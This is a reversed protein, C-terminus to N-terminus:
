LGILLSDLNFFHRLKNISHVGLESMQLVLSSLPTSSRSPRFKPEVPNNRYHLGIAILRVDRVFIHILIENVRGPNALLDDLLQWLTLVKVLEPFTNSSFICWYCSKSLIQKWQCCPLELDVLGQQFFYSYM